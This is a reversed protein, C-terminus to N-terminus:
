NRKPPPLYKSLFARMKNLARGRHSIKNKMEPPLQGFTRRLPYYFFIPDYGFGQDGKPAFAIRGQVRGETEKIIRGKRALVLHCVFRAQRRDWPVGKLLRLVKRINKKDSPRPASFRASFIGPAGDLHEVELGSDEALTLADRELSYAISKLRANERFSRGREKVDRPTGIDELSLFELPLGALSHTMERFKGRNTTALVITERSL